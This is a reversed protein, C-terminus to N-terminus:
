TAVFRERSSVGNVLTHSVILTRVRGIERCREWEAHRRACGLEGLGGNAKDATAIWDLRAARCGKAVGGRKHMSSM